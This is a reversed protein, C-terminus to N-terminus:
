LFIVVFHTPMVMETRLHYLAHIFRNKLHQKVAAHSSLIYRDGFQHAHHDDLFDEASTIGHHIAIATEVQTNATSNIKGVQRSM